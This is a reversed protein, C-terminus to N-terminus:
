SPHDELRPRQQKCCTPKPIFVQQKKPSLEKPDFLFEFNPNKQTRFWTQKPPTCSNQMSLHHDYKKPHIFFQQWSASFNWVSFLGCLAKKTKCIARNRRIGLKVFFHWVRFSVRSPNLKKCIRGFYVFESFDPTMLRWINSQSKYM